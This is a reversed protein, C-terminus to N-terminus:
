QAASRQGIITASDRKPVNLLRLWVNEDDTSVSGLVGVNENWPAVYM